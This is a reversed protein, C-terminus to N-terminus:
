IQEHASPARERGLSRNNDKKYYRRYKRELLAKDETETGPNTKPKQESTARSSYRGMAVSKRHFIVFLNYIVNQDILTFANEIPDLATPQDEGIREMNESALM